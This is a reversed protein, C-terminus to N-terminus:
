LVNSTGLAPVSQRILPHRATALIPFSFENILMLYSNKLYTLFHKQM